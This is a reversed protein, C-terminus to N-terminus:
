ECDEFGTRDQLLDLEAAPLGEHRTHRRGSREKPSQVISAIQAGLDRGFRLHPSSILPRVNPLINSTQMAM